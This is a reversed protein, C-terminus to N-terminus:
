RFPLQLLESALRTLRNTLAKTLTRADEKVSGLAYDSVRIPEGLKIIVKTRWPVLPNSYRLAIPVIKVDSAPYIAATQLALRALGPKLAHPLAERYIDGEPFIVLVEEEALLEVGYRLSAIAPHKTDVPFGGMRRIFWGQLGVVEDATVMFHLHRGTVYHGAALPVLLADWRSRHTPALIIPGSTPLNERGLITIRGFYFPIVAFKGLPYALKLVWPVLRSFPTATKLDKHRTQRNESSRNNFSLSLLPLRAQVSLDAVRRVDFFLPSM